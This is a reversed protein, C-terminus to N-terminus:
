VKNLDLFFDIVELDHYEPDYEKEGWGGEKEDEEISVTDEEESSHYSETVEMEEQARREEELIQEVEERLSFDNVLSKIEEDSCEWADELPLSSRLEERERFLAEEEEEWTNQYEMEEDLEEETPEWINKKPKKLQHTEVYVNRGSPTNKINDYSRDLEIPNTESGEEGVSVEVEEFEIPGYDEYLKKLKSTMPALDDIDIPSTRKM